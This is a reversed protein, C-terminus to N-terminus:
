RLAADLRASMEDPYKFEGGFRWNEPASEVRVYLKGPSLTEANGHWRKDGVLKLAIERDQNARTAHLFKLVPNQEGTQGYLLLEVLGSEPNIQVFGTLGREAANRDRELSENIELGRKYYDDEVLGDYTEIAIVLTAIGAVVATAPFFIVFWPWFQRYWPKSDTSTRIM